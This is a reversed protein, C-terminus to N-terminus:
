ANWKAVDGDAIKALETANAHEHAKGEVVVIRAIADALETDTAYQELTEAAIAEAIQTAVAKEGVLTELQEIATMMETAEGGHTSIYNLIEKFTNITGDDTIQTAFENIADAVKKDVSGEVTTDGNLVAIADANAQVKANNEAMEVFRLKEGKKPSKVEVKRGAEKTLWEEIANKDEIEERVM